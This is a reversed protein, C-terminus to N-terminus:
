CTTMTLCKTWRRKDRRRGAGCKKPDIFDEAIYKVNNTRRRRVINTTRTKTIRCPESFIKEAASRWGSKLFRRVPEQEASGARDGDFCESEATDRGPASTPGRPHALHYRVLQGRRPDRRDAKWAPRPWRAPVAPPANLEVVAVRWACLANTFLTSSRRWDARGRHGGRCARARDGAQLTYTRFARRPPAGSSTSGSRGRDARDYRAIRQEELLIV